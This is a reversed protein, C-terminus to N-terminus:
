VKLSKLATIASSLFKVSNIDHQYIFFFSHVLFIGFYRSRRCKDPHRSFTICLCFNSRIMIINTLIMIVKFTISTSYKSINFLFVTSLILLCKWHYTKSCISLNLYKWGKLYLGTQNTNFIITHISEQLYIYESKGVYEIVEDSADLSVVLTKIQFINVKLDSVGVVIWQFIWKTNITYGTNRRFGLIM